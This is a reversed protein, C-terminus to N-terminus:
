PFSRASSSALADLHSVDILKVLSPRWTKREVTDSEPRVEILTLSLNPISLSGERTKAFDTPLENDVMKHIMTRILASHSLAFVDYIKPTDFKYEKRQEETSSNYDDLADEVLSDIWGKVRQWADDISELLPMQVEEGEGSADCSRLELAEEYSLTKAYGERAGKAVERLRHDVILNVTPHIPHVVNMHIDEIGLVIRATRHARYLDSCYTRWYKRTRGNILDSSAAREAVELGNQTLPSDGQGLVINAVNAETEGHRILHLRVAMPVAQCEDLDDVVTQEIADASTTTVIQSQTPPMTSSYCHLTLYWRHWRIRIIKSLKRKRKRGGGARGGGGGAGAEPKQRSRSDVDVLSSLQFM